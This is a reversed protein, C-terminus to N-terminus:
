AILTSLNSLVAERWIWLASWTAGSGVILQGALVSLATRVAERTTVYGRRRFDWICHMNFVLASLITGGLRSNLVLYAWNYKLFGLFGVNSTDIATYCISWLYVLFTIHAIMQTAFAFQYAYKLIPVDANQYRDLYPKSDELSNARVALPRRQWWSLAVSFGAILISFTVPIFRWTYLYANASSTNGEHLLTAIAPMLYALAISFILVKAVEPRVFRGVPNNFGQYISLITYVPAVRCITQMQAGFLFLSPFALLTGQNGLRYGEVTYVLLPSMTQSLFYAFHIGCTPNPGPTPDKLSIFFVTGMLITTLVRPIEALSSRLPQVPLEHHFPIVRPRFPISLKKVRSGGLIPEGIRELSSEDGALPAVINLFLNSIFPNEFAFLAQLDHSRSVIYIAREHRANQFQQCVATVEDTSLGNLGDQRQDQKEM